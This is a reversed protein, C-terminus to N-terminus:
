YWFECSAYGTTSPAIAKFNQITHADDLYLVSGSLILEGASTTPDTGDTWIRINATEIVCVVKIAQRGTTTVTKSSDLSVVAGSTISLTEHDDAAQSFSVAAFIMVAMILFIAAIRKMTM